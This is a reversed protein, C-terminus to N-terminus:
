SMPMSFYCSCLMDSCLLPETCERVNRLRTMLHKNMSVAAVYDVDEDPMGTRSFPLSICRGVWTSGM